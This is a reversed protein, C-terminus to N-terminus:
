AAANGSRRPDAPRAARKGACRIEGGLIESEFQGAGGDVPQRGLDMEVAKDRRHCRGVLMQRDLSDVEAGADVFKTDVIAEGVAAAHRAEIDGRRM